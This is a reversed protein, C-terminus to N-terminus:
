KSIKKPNPQGAPAKISGTEARHILLDVGFLAAGVVASTIADAHAAVDATEVEQGALVGGAAVFAAAIFRALLQTIRKTM